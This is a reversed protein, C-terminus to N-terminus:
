LLWCTRLSLLRSFARASMRTEPCAPIEDDCKSNSEDYERNISKAEEGGENARSDDCPDSKPSDKTSTSADDRALPGRVTKYQKNYAVSVAHACPDVKSEGGLLFVLM